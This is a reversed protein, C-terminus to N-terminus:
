SITEIPKQAAPSLVEAYAKGALGIFRHTPVHLLSDATEEALTVLQSETLRTTKAVFLHM